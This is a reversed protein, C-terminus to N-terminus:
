ATATPAAAKARFTGARPDEDEALLKHAWRMDAPVGDGTTLIEVLRDRARGSGHRAAFHYFDIAKATCQTQELYQGINYTATKDGRLFASYFLLCAREACRPAGTGLLYCTGLNKMAETNGAESAAKFHRVAEWDDRPVADGEYYLEGLWNSADADGERAAGRLLALGRPVDADVHSGTALLRGYFAMAPGYGEDAAERVARVAEAEDDDGLARFLLMKGLRLRSELNGAASAAAYLRLARDEDEPVGLGVDFLLGLANLMAGAGAARLFGPRPSNPEDDGVPVAWEGPDCVPVDDLLDAADAVLQAAASADPAAGDGVALRSALDLMAGVNLSEAAGRLFQEAAAADGVSYLVRSEFLMASSHGRLAAIHLAWQAESASRPVCHSSVGVFWLAAPCMAELAPGMEDRAKSFRDLVCAEYLGRLVYWAISEGGSAMFELARRDAAGARGCAELGVLAADGPVLLAPRWALVARLLLVAPVFPVAKRLSEACDPLRQGGRPDADFLRLADRTWDEPTRSPVADATRPRRASSSSSSSSSTSNAARESAGIARSCVVPIDPHPRCTRARLAPSDPTHAQM